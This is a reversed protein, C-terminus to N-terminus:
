PQGESQPQRLATTVALTVYISLCIILNGIAFVFFARLPLAIDPAIRDLAPPLAGFVLSWGITAGFSIVVALSAAWLALRTAPDRFRLGRRLAKFQRALDHQVALLAPVVVLVLLMGVGLGYVLTIVTPKLFQAQQSHEFLLPALGLVTTLTTLIVARLRDATGDIISPILGRTRAHDDVSTILVISDNIIIGTM